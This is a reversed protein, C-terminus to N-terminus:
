TIQLPAANNASYVAHQRSPRPTLNVAHSPLSLEMVQGQNPKHPRSLGGNPSQHRRMQVVVEDICVFHNLLAGAFRDRLDERLLPLRIEPLELFLQDRLHHTPAPFHNGSATTQWSTLGVEGAQLFM